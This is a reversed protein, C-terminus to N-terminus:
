QAVLAVAATRSSPTTSQSLQGARTTGLWVKTSAVLPRPTRQAMRRSCAVCWLSSTRPCSASADEEGVADVALAASGERAAGHVEEEAAAAEAEAVKAAVAVARAAAVVAAVEVVGAELAVTTAAM